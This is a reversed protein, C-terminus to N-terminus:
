PREWRGRNQACGQLFGPTQPFRLVSYTGELSIGQYKGLGNVAQFTGETGERQYRFFIRDSENDYFECYGQSFTGGQVQGSIGVCQSSMNDFLQGPSAARVTGRFTVANVVNGEAHRLTQTTGTFCHTHEFTGTEAFVPVSACALFLAAATRTRRFM